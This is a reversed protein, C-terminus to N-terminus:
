KQGPIKQQFEPHNYIRQGKVVNENQCQRKLVATLQDQNFDQLNQGLPIKGRTRRKVIDESKANKYCEQFRFSSFWIRIYIAGDDTSVIQAFIM